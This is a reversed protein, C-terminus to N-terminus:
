FAHQHSRNWLKRALKRRHDVGEIRPRPVAALIVRELPFGAVSGLRVSCECASFRYQIIRSAFDVFLLGTTSDLAFINTLCQQKYPPGLEKRMRFLRAAADQAM